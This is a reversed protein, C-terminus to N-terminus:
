IQIRIGGYRRFSQAASLYRPDGLPRSLESLRDHANKIRVEHWDSYTNSGFAIEGITVLRVWQWYASAVSEIGDLKDLKSIQEAAYLYMSEESPIDTRGRVEDVVDQVGRGMLKRTAEIYNNVKLRTKFEKNM